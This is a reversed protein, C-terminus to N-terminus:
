AVHICKARQNVKVM